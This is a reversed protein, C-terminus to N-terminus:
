LNNSWLMRPGWDGAWIGEGPGLPVPGGRCVFCELVGRGATSKLPELVMCNPVACAAGLLGRKM